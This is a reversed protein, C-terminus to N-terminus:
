RNGTIPCTELAPNSTTLPRIGFHWIPSDLLITVNPIYSQRSHNRYTKWYHSDESGMKLSELLKPWKADNSQIKILSEYFNTVESNFGNAQYLIALETLAQMPHTDNLVLAEANDIRMHFRAM